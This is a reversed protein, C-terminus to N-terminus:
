IRILSKKWEPCARVEGLDIQVYESNFKNIWFEDGPGNDQIQPKDVHLEVAGWPQVIKYKFRAPVEIQILKTKM